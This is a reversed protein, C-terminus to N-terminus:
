AAGRRHCSKIHADLKDQRYTGKYRCRPVSCKFPRDAQHKKEHRALDSTRKFTTNCTSCQPRSGKTSAVASKHETQAPTTTGPAITPNPVLPYVTPNIDAAGHDYSMLTSVPDTSPWIGRTLDDTNTGLGYVASIAGHAASTAGSDHLSTFEDITGALYSNNNAGYAANTAGYATSADGYAANTANLATNTADYTAHIADYDRLPTNEDFEGALYPNSTLGPGQGQNSPTNQFDPYGLSMIDSGIAHYSHRADYIANPGNANPYRYACSGQPKLGQGHLACSNLLDAGGSFFFESSGLALM